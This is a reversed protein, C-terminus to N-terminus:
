ACLNPIEGKEPDKKQTLKGLVTSENRRRKM